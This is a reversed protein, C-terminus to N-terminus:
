FDVLIKAFEEETDSRTITSFDAIYFVTGTRQTYVSTTISSININLNEVDLTLSDDFDVDYPGIYNVLYLDNGDKEHVIASVGNTQTVEDGVSVSSADSVSVLLRNDFSTTAESFTPNYVLAIKSYDGSSPINTATSTVTGSICISECNLEKIVDSGHGNSPSIIPRLLATVDGASTNFYIPEVVTAEANVYDQGRNIMTISIIRENADDFVPIAEADSGTGSILVQPLISVVDLYEIEFELADYGSIDVYASGGTEGSGTIVYTKSGIIDSGDYKTVYLVTGEYINAATNFSFGVDINLTVRGSAPVTKISGDLKEYGFNEAFNEVQIVNIGSVATNSTSDDVVIPFRNQTRFKRVTEYPVTFLYKWIYGDATHSEGGTLNIDAYYIPKSTSAIGNNNFLCKFVYYDGTSEEPEVVVFFNNDSLNERDDYMDYVVGSIWVNNDIMYAVDDSAVQIGFITKELVDLNTQSTKLSTNAGDYDSGFLYCDESIATEYFSTVINNTFDFTKISM